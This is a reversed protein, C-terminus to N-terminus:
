ESIIVDSNRATISYRTLMDANTAMLQKQKSKLVFYITTAVIFTISTAAIAIFIVYDIYDGFVLVSSLGYAACSLILFVIFSIMINKTHKIKRALAQENMVQQVIDFQAFKNNNDSKLNSSFFQQSSSHDM